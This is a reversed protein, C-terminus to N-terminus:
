FPFPFPSERLNRFALASRSLPPGEGELTSGKRRELARRIEGIGRGRRAGAVCALGVGRGRAGRESKASRAFGGEREWELRGAM